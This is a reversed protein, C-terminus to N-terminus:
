VDSDNTTLCARTLTLNYFFVHFPLISFVALSKNVICDSTKHM